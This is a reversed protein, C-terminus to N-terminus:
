GLHDISNEGNGDEYELQPVWNQASLGLVFNGPLQGRELLPDLLEFGFQILCGLSSWCGLGSM